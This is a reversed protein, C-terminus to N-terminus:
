PFCNYPIKSGLVIDVFEKLITSILKDDGTPCEIKAILIFFEIFEKRCLLRKDKNQDIRDQDAKKSPLKLAQEFADQLQKQSVKKIIVQKFFFKEAAYFDIGAVSHSQSLVCKYIVKLNDFNETVFDKLFTIDGKEVIRLWEINKLDHDVCEETRRRNDEIWDKFVSTSKDFEM